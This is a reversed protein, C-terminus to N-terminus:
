KLARLNLIWKIKGTKINIIKIKAVYQGYPQANEQWVKKWGYADTRNKCPIEKILKGKEYIM